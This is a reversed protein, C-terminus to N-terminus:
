ITFPEGYKELHRAMYEALFEAETCPALDAHVAERIKDDMLSVAQDYLGSEIIENATM